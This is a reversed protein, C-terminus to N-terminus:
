VIPIMATFSLNIGSQDFFAFNASNFDELNSTGDNFGLALHTSDFVRVVGLRQAGGAFEAASGCIGQYPVNAAGPFIYNTDITYGSPISFKFTGSGNTGASSTVLNYMIYMMKGIINYSAINTTITGITPDTTTATISLSYANFQSNSAQVALPNDSVIVDFYVPSSVSTGDASIALIHGTASGAYTLRNITLIGTTPDYMDAFGVDSTNASDYSSTVDINGTRGTSSYWQMTYNKNLGIFIDYRTPNNNTDAASYANGQYAAMGNAVSPSITPAGNTDTYTNAGANRLQTRYEGLTAPNTGTVRTGNALFNSIKFVSSNAQVIGASWGAIPVKFTFSGSDGSALVASGNALPYINSSTTTSVAIYVNDTTIGVGDTIVWPGYGTSPISNLSANAARTFFGFTNTQSPTTIKSTDLSLGSPLSITASTATSSGSTFLGQVEISDGIRRWFASVGSVTGFGTFTPTYSQWDNIVPGLVTEDPGVFVDDFSFTVATTSTSAFFFGVRIQATTSLTSFTCEIVGSSGIVDNNSPTILASNIVDYVYFKLDGQIISGSIIKFPIKISNVVGRYALPVYAICSAGEGQRNAADKIVKFSAAGNLVEGGTTTRSITVTPSGGTMDTPTSQAPDAFAAWNGVSTEADANNTNVPQWSSNLVIFNQSLSSGSGILKENGSSDLSYLNNDSKFYFRNRSASPNSPTAIQGRDDYGEIFENNWPTASSGINRTNADAIWDQAPTKNTITDTTNRAILTDTADPLTLVKNTTQSSLLTISTGTTGAADFKIQKTNDANDVIATSSDVLSKNTLLDTTNKGVLTDTADPLTLTKNTTQSSLLTTSTSVAGAADFKIQISSDSNDVIAISNDVLEKNTLLDSTNRAVLTDTTDPLTLQRNATQSSILTTKTGTTAGSEDFGIKKTQDAPDVFFVTTDDLNTNQILGPVTNVQITGTQDPLTAVRNATQSTALTTSTGTTGAADFKLQKTTDSSDVVATTSDDLDKNQLRHTGQDAHTETVVPSSSSGNNLNLKNNTTDFDLDGASSATSATKPVINIGQFFKRFSFAM